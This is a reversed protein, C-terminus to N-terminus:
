IPTTFFLAPILYTQSEGLHFSFTKNITTKTSILVYTNLLSFPLYVDVLFIKTTCCDCTNSIVYSLIQTSGYNTFLSYIHTYFHEMYFTNWRTELRYELLQIITLLETQYIARLFNSYIDLISHKNYVPTYYQL